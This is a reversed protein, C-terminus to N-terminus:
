VIVANCLANSVSVKITLIGTKAIAIQQLFGTKCHKALYVLIKTQVTKALTNVNNANLPRVMTMHKHYPLALVTIMSTEVPFANLAPVQITANLVNTIV